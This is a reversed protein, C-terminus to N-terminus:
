FIIGLVICKLVGPLYSSADTVSAKFASRYMISMEAVILGKWM